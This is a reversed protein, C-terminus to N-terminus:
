KKGKRGLHSLTGGQRPRAESTLRGGGFSGVNALWVDDHGWRSGWLRSCLAGNSWVCLLFIEGVRCKYEYLAIGAPKSSWDNGANGLGM